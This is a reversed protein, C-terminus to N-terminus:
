RRLHPEALLHSADAREILDSKLAQFIAGIGAGTGLQHATLWDATEAQGAPLESALLALLEHARAIWRGHDVAVVGAEWWLAALAPNDAAKVYLRKALRMALPPPAPRARGANTRRAAADRMQEDILGSGLDEAYWFGADAGAALLRANWTKQHVSVRSSRTMKLERFLVTRGVFVSDPFGADSRQSNHTHYHLLEYRLALKACRSQLDAENRIGDVPSM